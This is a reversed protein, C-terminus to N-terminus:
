GDTPIRVSVPGEGCYMKLYTLIKAKIFESTM